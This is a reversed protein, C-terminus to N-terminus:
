VRKKTPEPPDITDWVAITFDLDQKINLLYGTLEKKASVSLNELFTQLFVPLKSEPMNPRLTPLIRGHQLLNISIHFGFQM